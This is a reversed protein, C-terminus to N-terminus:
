VTFLLRIAEHRAMQRLELDARVGVLEGQAEADEIGDVASMWGSARFSTEDSWPVPTGDSRPYAPTAPYLPVGRGFFSPM